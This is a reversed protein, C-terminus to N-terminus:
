PTETPPLVVKALALDTTLPNGPDGTDLDDPFRGLRRAERYAAESIPELFVSWVDHVPREIAGAVCVVQGDRLFTAVAQFPGGRYLRRRWFGCSPDDSGVLVRAHLCKQWQQYDM